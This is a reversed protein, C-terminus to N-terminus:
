AKQGKDYNKIAEPSNRIYYFLFLQAVGPYSALTNPIKGKYFIDVARKMWVDEPFAAHQKAGYLLACHAVKIGVGNIQCLHEVAEKLPLTTAQKETVVGVAVKQAADLIYKARFGAKLPALDSLTLQAVKQASPFTYHGNEIPKGFTSCFREVISTIRIINNNQSIIFTCLTEWFDQNLLRLGPCFSIAKKMVPDKSLTAKIKVYDNELDFYHKYFNDFEKQTCGTLFVEDNEEIVTLLNNRVVGQFTNEEEKKWRFCQGSYFTATLDFESKPCLYYKTLTQM